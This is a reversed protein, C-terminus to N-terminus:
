TTEETKMQRTAMVVHMACVVSSGGDGVPRHTSPSTTGEWSSGRLLDCSGGPQEPSAPPSQAAAISPPASHGGDACTTLTIPLQVHTNARRTVTQQMGAIQERWSNVGESAKRTKMRKVNVATSGCCNVERVTGDSTQNTEVRSWTNNQHPHRQRRATHTQVLTCRTDRTASPSM